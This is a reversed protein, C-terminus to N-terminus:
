AREAPESFALKEARLPRARVSSLQSKQERGKIDYLDLFRRFAQTWCEEHGSARLPTRLGGALFWGVRVLEGYFVVLWSFM